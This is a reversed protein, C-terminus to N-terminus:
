IGAAGHSENEGKNEDRARGGLTLWGMSASAAMGVPADGAGGGEVNPAFQTTCAAAAHIDTVTSLPAAPSLVAASVDAGATASPCCSDAPALATAGALVGDVAAFAVAAAASPPAALCSAATERVPGYMGAAGNSKSGGTNEGWGRGALTLWGMCASAAMGEADGAGVGEVLRTGGVVTCPPALTRVTAAACPVLGDAVHAAAPVAALPASLLVCSCCAPLVAPACTEVQEYTGAAGHSDDGGIDGLGLWGMSASEKMGEADGAEGVEVLMTGGKPSGGGSGGLGACRLVVKRAVRRGRSVAAWAKACSEAQTTPGARGRVM